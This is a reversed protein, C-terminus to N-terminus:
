EWGLQQKALRLNYDTYRNGGCRNNYAILRENYTATDGNFAQMRVAHADYERYQLDRLAEYETRVAPDIESGLFVRSQAEEVRQKLRAMEEAERALVPRRADLSQRQAAMDREDVLCQKTEELSLNGQAQVAAGTLMATGAIVLAAAAGIRNRRSM